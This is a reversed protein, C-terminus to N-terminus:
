SEDRLGITHAGGATVDIWGSLPSTVLAADRPPDGGLQGLNDNGWCHLTTGAVVCAHILARRVGDDVVNAGGVSLAKIGGGLSSGSGILCREYLYACGTGYWADEGLVQRLNGWCYLTGRSTVACTNNYGASLLAWDSGPVSYHASVDVPTSSGEGAESGFQNLGNDGWCFLRGGRDPEAFTEIGCSHRLGLAVQIWSGGVQTPISRQDFSGIGLQGDNNAGWCYLRGGGRIGCVHGGGVSAVVDVWDSALGVRLPVSSGENLTGQGLVGSRDWGWCYLEGARIGCTNGRGASVVMWGTDSGVQEPSSRNDTDGVGLQGSRNLGWCWLTNDVKIGCSHYRGADMDAWASASIEQTPLAAQGGEYGLGLQGRSNDGWVYAHVRSDPQVPTSFEFRDRFVSDAVQAVAGCSSLALVVLSLQVVDSVLKM